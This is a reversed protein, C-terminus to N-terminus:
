VLRDDEGNYDLLEAKYNPFACINVTESFLALTHRLTASSSLLQSKRWDLRVNM